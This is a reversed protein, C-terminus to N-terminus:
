IKVWMVLADEQNDTYYRKRIAGDQFGLKRYLNQAIINSVRVELTMTNAGRNKAEQMIKRLLNEGLKYGRFQPLIAINTIHAEDVVIWVGCYGVLHEEHEIVVYTAFRNQTLENYFAEKSWPTPFSISEITYVEEIDKVTMYRFDYKEM